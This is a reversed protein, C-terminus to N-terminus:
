GGMIYMVFFATLLAVTLAAKSLKSHLLAALAALAIAGAMIRLWNFRDFNFRIKNPFHSLIFAVWFAISCLISACASVNAFWHPKTSPQDPAQNVSPTAMPLM